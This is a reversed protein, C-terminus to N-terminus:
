LKGFIHPNGEMCGVGFLFGKTQGLYVSSGDLVLEDLGFCTEYLALPSLNGEKQIGYPISLGFWSSNESPGVLM